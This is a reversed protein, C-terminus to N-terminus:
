GSERTSSKVIQTKLVQHRDRIRRNLEEMEGRLAARERMTLVENLSAARKEARAMLVGPQYLNTFLVGIRRRYAEAGQPTEILAKAVSGIMRPEIRSPALGFLNDMGHPLFVIRGPESEYIRFNNRRICYGDGHGLLVEMAMFSVFKEVDLMESMARWRADLDKVALRESLLLPAGRGSTGLKADMPQDIDQGDRPEYLQGETSGFHAVVFEQTFGEKLVYLGLRRGNLYVLAHCVRAAPVGAQRFLESGLLENMFSGDEISNNLHIRSLGDLRDRFIYANFTLTISPKDDLQRFSGAGKLHMGVAAFRNTGAVVAVKVEDRPNNRLNALAAPDVTLEIRHARASKFIAEGPVSGAVASGSTAIVLMTCLLFPLAGATM